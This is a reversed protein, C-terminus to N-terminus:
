SPVRQRRMNMGGLAFVVSLLGFTGPEPVATLARVHDSYSGVNFLGASTFDAVDLVDVYGDYNFDGEAWTASLGSNAKGSGLLNAVDLIDVSWDLNTDGPAAYGFTFSGDGNNLWGVTRNEGANVLAAAISSTIGSAGNWDGGNRGAIIQAVLQNETLGAAVTVCGTTVDLRGSGSVTLGAVTTRTNPAVQAEAGALVSLSGTGLAASHALRVRGERVAMVEMLDNPQDLVLTGTGTKLVPTSGFLREHGAQRQTKTDVPVDITIYAAPIVPEPLMETTLGFGPYEISRGTSRMFQSWLANGTSEMRARFWLNRSGLLSRPLVGSYDPGVAIVGTPTPVDMLLDWTRGDASAWFSAKGSAGGFNACYFHTFCSGSIVPNAFTFRLTVEGVGPTIPAWYSTTTGYPDKYAKANSTGAIYKAADTDFVTTVAYRFTTGTITPAGTVVTAPYAHAVLLAALVVLARHGRSVPVLCRRHHCRRQTTISRGAANQNAVFSRSTSASAWLADGGYTREISM